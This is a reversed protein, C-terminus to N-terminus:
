LTFFGSKRLQVVFRLLHHAFQFVKLDTMGHTFVVNVGVTEGVFGHIAALRTTSGAAAGGAGARSSNSPTTLFPTM